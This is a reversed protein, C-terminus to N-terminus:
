TWRKCKENYVEKIQEILKLFEEGEKTISILLPNRNIGKGEIKIFESYQKKRLTSLISEPRHNTIKVLEKITFNPKKNLIELYKCITQTFSHSLFGELANKCKETHLNFPVINNSFFIKFFNYLNNWKGIVFRDNLRIALLDIETKDLIEQFMEKEKQSFSITIKHLGRKNKDVGGEAYLLGNLAHIAQKKELNRLHGFIYRFIVSVITKDIVIRLNGLSSTKLQSKSISPYFQEEKLNLVKKWKEKALEKNFQNNFLLRTRWINRPIKFIEEFKQIVFEHLEPNKNVFYLKNQYHGDGHILFCLEILEPTIKIFRPLTIPIKYEKFLTIFRNERYIMKINEKIKALDLFDEGGIENNKSEEVIEFLIKERNKINLTKIIMKPISFKGWKIVKGIFEFKKNNKVARLIIFGGEKINTSKRDKSLFTSFPHHTSTIINTEFKKLIREKNYLKSFVKEHIIQNTYVNFDRSKIIQLM